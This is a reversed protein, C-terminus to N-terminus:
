SPVRKTIMFGIIMFGLGKRYDLYGFTRAGASMSEEVNAPVLRWVSMCAAEVVKESIRTYQSQIPCKVVVYMLM